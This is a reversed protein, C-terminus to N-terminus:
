SEVPVSGNERKCERMVHRSKCAEQVGDTSLFLYKPVYDLAEQQALLLSM